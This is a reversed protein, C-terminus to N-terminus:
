VESSGNELWGLFRDAARIAAKEVDLMAINTRNAPGCLKVAMMLAFRRDSLEAGKGFESALRAKWLRIDDM